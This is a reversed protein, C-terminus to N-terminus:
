KSNQKSLEKIEKVVAEPTSSSLGDFYGLVRGHPNVLAIRDSHAFNGPLYAFPDNTDRTLISGILNEIMAQGGTLFWWRNTDADFRRGYKALVPVTDDEPDVTLSVLQVDPQNTSLQQIEEMQRSIIPCTTSCSTFVFSMVLFKGDLNTRTIARGNQDTLSFNALQRSRAPRIVLPESVPLDYVSAEPTQNVHTLAFLFVGFGTGVFACFGMIFWFFLREENRPQNTATNPM